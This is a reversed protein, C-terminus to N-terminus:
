EELVKKNLEDTTGLFNSEFKVGERIKKDGKNNFEKVLLHNSGCQVLFENEQISLVRGIVGTIKSDTVVKSKWIKILNTGLITFAGPHPRCSAKILRDIEVASKTWDILGDSPERKGFYTAKSHDQEVPNWCGMKLKPLWNGLGERIAAQVKPIITEADDEPDLVYPCQAHIAGDDAGLGMQFFSAAGNRAELIQWAIPARGRGYPLLTPHFGICGKPALGLWDQNLLQSFGVAFIIEPNRSRMWELHKPDNIKKYGSYDLGCSESFSKLDKLGSVGSPNDPEHGMVGVVEFGHKILEELTVITTGVAGIVGVKM